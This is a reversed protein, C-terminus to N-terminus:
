DQPPAVLKAIDPQSLNDKTVLTAGTDENKDFPKKNIVNVMTTVSDHGMKFPNQVILGDIEGAKMGDILKPSSDFGVFKVKGAWKNEELVRLMGFTTSENPCYIGQAQLSGDSNKFGGLLGEAKQQASDATAGGEENASLVKINKAKSVVDMFGQERDMTSASGTEYRLMIVGGGKPGLLKVMEEGAMQGGKYNNTAVYSSFKDSKLSSDIIVVPIGAAVAAEVPKALAQNDLPALVIGDVKDNVFDEVTKIQDERDDEKLPGKFVIEVKLEDAAANAGAHLAKWYDHTSGKPIVAIKLKKAGGNDTSTATKGTDGTSSSSSDGSGCGVAMLLAMGAALAAGYCHKM